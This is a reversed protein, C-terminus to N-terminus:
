EERGQRFKHIVWALYNGVELLRFEERETKMKKNLLTEYEGLLHKIQDSYHSLDYREIITDYPYTLVDDVRMYTDLDYVALDELSNMIFPCHTSVIFQINPFFGTLFPLIRKQLEIHLAIELGDILVIGQTKYANLAGKTMRLMLSMRLILDCLISLLRAYGASLTHFDFQGFTDTTILFNDRASDVQLHLTSDEFLDQLATEFMGFWQEIADATKTDGKQGASVKEAQL